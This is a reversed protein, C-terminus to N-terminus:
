NNRLNIFELLKELFYYIFSFLMEYFKQIMYKNRQTGIFFFLYFIPYKKKGHRRTRGRATVSVLVWIIIYFTKMINCCGCM